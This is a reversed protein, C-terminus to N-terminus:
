RDLIRHRAIRLYYIAYLYFKYISLILKSCSVFNVIPTLKIQVVPMYDYDFPKYKMYAKVLQKVLTRYFIM